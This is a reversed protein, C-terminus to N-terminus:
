ATRSQRLTLQRARRPRAVRQRSCAGLRWVVAAHLDPLRDDPLHRDPTAQGPVPNFWWAKAQSGSVKTMDITLGRQDPTYVIVTNGNSTRAAAAYSSSGITGYGSTLVSHSFDPVLAAGPVRTSSSRRVRDHQERGDLQASCQWGANFAWIPNNGFFQGTAGKSCRGIPRHAFAFRLRARTRTSGKSSSSRFRVRGRTTTPCNSRRRRATPTRRISTSGRERGSVSHHGVPVPRQARTFLPRRPPRRIGQVLSQIEDLASNPAFDGGM